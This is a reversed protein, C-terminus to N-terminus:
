SSPPAGSPVKPLRTGQLYADGKAVGCLVRLIAYQTRVFEIQEQVSLAHRRLSFEAINQRCRDAWLAVQDPIMTASM